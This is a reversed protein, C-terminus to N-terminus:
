RMSNAIAAAQVASLEDGSLAFIRGPTSWFFAAGEPAGEEVLVGHEGSQLPVSRIRARKPFRMVLAPNTQLAAGLTAAADPPQGFVRFALTMFASFQLSSSTTIHFPAAQLLQMGNWDAVIIPGGEAVLTTGEWEPPVTVDSAGAAALAREIAVVDLPRTSLRLHEIAQWAPERSPVGNGPLMLHMDALREAAARDDLGTNFSAVPKMTFMEVVSDALDSRPVDVVVVRRLVLQNWMQKALARTGPLGVLAIVGLASVM